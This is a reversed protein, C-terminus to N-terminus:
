SVIDPEDVLPLASMSNRMGRGHRPPKRNTLQKAGDLNVMDGNEHDGGSLNDKSYGGELVVFPRSFDTGAAM